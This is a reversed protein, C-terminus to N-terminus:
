SIKYGTFWTGNYPAGGGRYVTVTNSVGAGFVHVVVSVIDGANLFYTTAGNIRFVGSVNDACTYPAARVFAGSAGVCPGTGAVPFSTIVAEDAVTLSILGVTSQFAYLGTSPATFRGTTTDFGSNVDWVLTDFVITYANLGTANPIDGSITAAFAVSGAAANIIVNNGLNPVAETTIGNGGLINLVNVAPIATGNDTPYSTAIEGDISWTLTHTAPDGTVVIQGPTGLTNINRNADGFVTGGVDGTLSDLDGGGGFEIWTALQGRSTTTGQLSVLVWVQQTITNLWLDGLVYNASDYEDPNRNEFSWNPPQNARTGRYNTGVTTGGWANGAM